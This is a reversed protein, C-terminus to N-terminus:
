LEVDEDRALRNRDRRVIGRLHHREVRQHAFEADMVGAEEIGAEAILRAARRRRAGDQFDAGAFDGEDEFVALGDASENELSEGIGRRLNVALADPRVILTLPQLERLM